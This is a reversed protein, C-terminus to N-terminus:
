DHLLNRSGSSCLLFLSIHISSILLLIPFLADIFNQNAILFFIKKGHLNSYDWHTQSTKLKEETKSNKDYNNIRSLSKSRESKTQNSRRIEIEIGNM